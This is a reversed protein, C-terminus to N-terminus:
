QLCRLGKGTETHRTSHGHNPRNHLRVTPDRMAAPASSLACRQLRAGWLATRVGRLYRNRSSQYSPAAPLRAHGDRGGVVHCGRKPSAHCTSRASHPAKRRTGALYPPPRKRIRRDRDPSSRPSGSNTTSSGVRRERKRHSSCAPGAACYQALTVDISGRRLQFEIMPGQLTIPRHLFPEGHQVLGVPPDGVAKMGAIKMEDHSRRRSSRRHSKAYENISLRRAGSV